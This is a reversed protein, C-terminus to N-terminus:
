GQGELGLRLGFIYGSELGSRLEQVPVLTFFRAARPETGDKKSRVKASFIVDSATGTM